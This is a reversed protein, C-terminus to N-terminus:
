NFSFPSYLSEEYGSDVLGDAIPENYAFPRQDQYGRTNYYQPKSEGNPIVQSVKPRVGYFGGSEDLYNILTSGAGAAKLASLEQNSFNYTRRTSTLYAVITQDPVHKSVLNQIDAYDLAQADSMKSTTIVAVGRSTAASLVEPNVQSGTSCGAILMISFFTIGIISHRMPFNTTKPFFKKNWGVEKHLSFCRSCHLESTKSSFHEGGAM